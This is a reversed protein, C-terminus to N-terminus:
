FPLDSTEAPRRAAQQAPRQVASAAQQGNGQGNDDRPSVFEVDGALLELGANLSNDREGVWPRADLRGHCVVRMGKSLYKNLTEARKGLVTVRVWIARDTYTGDPQKDSANHAVSFKIFPDGNASYKLDPVGGINGCITALLM